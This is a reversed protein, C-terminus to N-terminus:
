FLFIRICVRKPLTRMPVGELHLGTGSLLVAWTSSDVKCIPTMYVISSYERVAKSSRHHVRSTGFDPAAEGQRPGRGSHSSGLKMILAVCEKTRQSRGVREGSFECGQSIGGLLPQSAWTHGWARSVWEGGVTDPSRLQVCCSERRPTCKM